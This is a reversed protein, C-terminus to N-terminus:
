IKAKTLGDPFADSKEIWRKGIKFDAPIILQYDRSLTCNRFNIPRELEEKMIKMSREALEEKILYPASDHSDMFFNIEQMRKKAAVMAFKTQDSVTAQPIQAYAEKWLDEGWKNFFIRRRGHPSFLTNNNAKLAEIIEAHFVGRIKNNAAHFRELQQGAQWESIFIGQKGLLLMHQHKKMNYNGAHRTKKGIQRNWDNIEDFTMSCVAMATTTHRDDKLGHKNYNFITREYDKLADWDCALVCVVRDEAQGLDPEVIVYGPDAVFMSRLDGGGASLNPDEHKTMTQLAIGEKEISVPSKLISTSTRGSEAGNINCQTHIRGIKAPMLSFTTGTSMRANIYTGITKRIKRIELIGILIDKRRKDKINNNVLAKLTEDSTDKRVPCALYGYVLKAVQNNKGNSMVNFNKFLEYIDKDGQSINQVLREHREEWMGKYRNGLHKRVEQDILLGVDEIDFYLKYLPQIKDFFFEYLNSSKLEELIKDGCEFEVASDKANYMYWRDISHVKANYEKGEDKYYPEETIMSAIFQLSKPFEPYLIHWGMDMSFYCDRWNLGLQRCRKHDFKANQACRKVNLDQFFEALLRWIQVLDHSPINESFTPISIAEYSNFALAVCQVFTKYTEVDIYCLPDKLDSHKDLFKYVDLSNRAIHLNRQPLRIERFQSQEVARKVDMKIYVFEKWSKVEGSGGEHMLSAPHMCPIVKHGTKTATLISGRYNQIGTLGTLAKLATAGVALICNPDIAIIEDWMQPIFDEITHGLKHLEEIKNNPPRIKVVNTAYVESRDMGGFSLAEDMMSGSPGSFPIGLTEERAGPAEGVMVLKASSCGHGPVIIAM